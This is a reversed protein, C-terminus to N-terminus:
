AADNEAALLDLASGIEDVGKEALGPKGEV